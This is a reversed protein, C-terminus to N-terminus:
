GFSQGYLWVFWLATGLFPGFPLADQGTMQRGTLARASVWALAGAAALAILTPLAEWSVWAGAAALLKADGLGLGARGRLREYALSIVFFVAFGTAAGIVHDPLLVPDTAYAVALGAPILPLTLRDSLIYHRLDMAGLALLSWGLGCGVWVMWGSCMFTAWCAIALAALEILPYFRSVRSGCYRCIGRAFLWSLLPVLDRPKLRTSCDRCASHAFVVPAGLPVRFALVGLFSGVFPALMAPLARDVWMTGSMDPIMWMNTCREPLCEPVDGIGRTM